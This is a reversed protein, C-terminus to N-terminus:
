KKRRFFSLIGKREKAAIMYDTIQEAAKNCREELDENDKQLAVKEKMLEDREKTMERLLANDADERAESRQLGEVAAKLDNFGNVVRRMVSLENKLEEVQGKMVLKSNVANKEALTAQRASEELNANDILLHHNAKELTEVQEHYHACTQKLSAYKTLAERCFDVNVKHTEANKPIVGYEDDNLRINIRNERM